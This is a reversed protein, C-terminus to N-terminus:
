NSFQEGYPGEQIQNIKESALVWNGDSGQVWTLTRKSAETQTANEDGLLVNATDAASINEVISSGDVTMSSVKTQHEYASENLSRTTSHEILKSIDITTGNPYTVKFDPATIAALKQIDGYHVDDFYQDTLSKIANAQDATPAQAATTQASAAFPTALLLTAAVTAVTRSIQHQPTRKMFHDDEQARQSAV